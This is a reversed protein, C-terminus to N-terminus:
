KVKKPQASAVTKVPFGRSKGMRANRYKSSLIVKKGSPTTGVLISINKNGAM